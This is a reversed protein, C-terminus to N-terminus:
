KNISVNVEQIVKFGFNSYLTFAGMKPETGLSITKIGEEFAWNCLYKLMWKGIGNRQLYPVVVMCSIHINDEGHPLALLFGILEGNKILKFSSDYDLCYPLGLDNLFYDVRQREDQHKFFEADGEEFAYIYLELLPELDSLSIKEVIIDDLMSLETVFVDRKMEVYKFDM